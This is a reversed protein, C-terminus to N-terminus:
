CTYSAKYKCASRKCCKGYWVACAACQALLCTVCKVNRKLCFAACVACCKAACSYDFSTCSCAYCRGKKKCAKTSCKASAASSESSTGDEPTATWSGDEDYEFIKRVTDSESPNEFHVVTAYPSSGPKPNSLRYYAATVGDVTQAVSFRRSGDELVAEFGLVESFDETSFTGSHLAAAHAAKSGAESSWFERLLEVTKASALPQLGKQPSATIWRPANAYAPSAVSGLATAVVGAGIAVKFFDSRPMGEPEDQSTSEGILKLIRISTGIGFRRLLTFALGAGQHVRITRGSDSEFLTPRNRDKVSQDAMLVGVSESDLPALSLLGETANAAAQATDECFSCSSDYALTYSRM